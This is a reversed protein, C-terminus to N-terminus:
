VDSIDEFHSSDLKIWELWKNGDWLMMALRDKDKYFDGDSPNAPAKSPKMNFMYISQALFPDFPTDKPYDIKTM